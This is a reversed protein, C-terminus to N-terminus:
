SFVRAELSALADKGKKTLANGGIHLARLRNPADAIKRASADTLENKRLDLIGLRGFFPAAVLSM